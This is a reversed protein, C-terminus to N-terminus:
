FILTITVEDSYLGPSHGDGQTPITGYVTVSGSGTITAPVSAGTLWPDTQPAVRYLIYMLTDEGNSMTRQGGGNGAHGGDLAVNLSTTAICSIDINGTANVSTNPDYGTGFDLSAATVTCVDGITAQVHLQETQSQALAPNSSLALGALAAAALLGNSHTRLM